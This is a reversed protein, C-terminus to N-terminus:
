VHARGIKATLGDPSVGYQAEIPRMLPDHVQTTIITGGLAATFAELMGEGGDSVPMSLVRADPIAERIGSEVAQGAEASSLCGKFSDIAIVIKM